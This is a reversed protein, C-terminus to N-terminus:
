QRRRMSQMAREFEIAHVHEFGDWCATAANTGLILLGGMNGAFITPAPADESLRPNDWWGRRPIM